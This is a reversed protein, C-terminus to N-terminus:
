HRGMTQCSAWGLCHFPWVTYRSIKALDLNDCNKHGVVLVRFYSDCFLFQSFKFMHFSKFKHFNECRHKHALRARDSSPVTNSNWVTLRRRVEEVPSREDETLGAIIFPHPWYSASFVSFNFSCFNKRSPFLIKAFIQVLSFKGSYPLRTHMCRKQIHFCVQVRWHNTETSHKNITTQM